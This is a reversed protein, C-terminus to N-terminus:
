KFSRLSGGTGPTMQANRLLLFLLVATVANSILNLKRTKTM